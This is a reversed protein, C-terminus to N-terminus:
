GSHGKCLDLTGKMGEVNLDGIVVEARHYHVVMTVWADAVIMGVREEYEGIVVM